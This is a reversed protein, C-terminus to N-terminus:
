RLQTIARTVTPCIKRLEARKKSFITVNYAKAFLTASDFRDLQEETYRISESYDAGVSVFNFRASSAVDFRDPNCNRLGPTRIIEREGAIYQIYLKIPRGAAIDALAEAEGSRGAWPNSGKPTVSPAPVPMATPASNGHANGPGACGGLILIAALSAAKNRIM